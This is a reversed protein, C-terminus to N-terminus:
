LHNHEREETNMYAASTWHQLKKNITTENRFYASATYTQGAYIKYDKKLLHKIPM